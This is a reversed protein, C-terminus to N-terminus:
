ENAERRGEEALIEGALLEKAERSPEEWLGRSIAEMLRNAISVVAHPNVEHLFDRVKPDGLYAQTVREYMWDEVVNATADYGYLYDVTSALEFAGKYGHNQMASIWKPNIVRSRVVRAAEEALSRVKPSTPNSSDGFYGKADVGTISRIAALMGGHDQLYDDSDFIDHERNDQNKIAINAAGLRKVLAEQAPIGFGSSSYSYGSWALYVRALDQDDRWNGADLLPLIGSGYGGPAPGFVRAIEGSSGLNSEPFSRAVEVAAQDFLRIAGPFADRFFGSVRLTVDVRPRKLEEDPIVSFGVVKQTSPDWKPRVGMLWLAEAIDDGGTRMAATGWVVIAVSTPYSGTELLYRDCVAQGLLAGTEYSAITPLSSPDISYFNRGTPLVQVAGRSPSGSPGPEIFEGALAREIATIEDITADLRPLLEVRLAELCSRVKSNERLDRHLESDCEVEQALIYESILKSAVDAIADSQNRDQPDLHAVEAITEHLSPYSYAPIRSLAFILDVLPQGDHCRGLVHLGGRITADKIECLYGDLELLIEDFDDDEFDFSAGDLNLDKHMQVEQMLEWISARISPLKSPDLVLYRAHNDLLTELELLESYSEARTLPPIMHDIIVGHSRRKAQTGEGPDNVVFPYILPISGLTLDPFCHRSQGTAKGPLWELTGHKGLHVVANVGIIEELWRYFAVYHHTPALKPSHYIAIPNEGFGRPPQITLFINGFWIGPFFFEGDEHYWDGPPDGWSKIMTEQVSSSFSGFIGLYDKVKMRNTVAAGQKIGLAFEEYEYTDSLREMLEVGSNPIDEIHYGIEKLHNMLVIVSEPTDLGVANGLRSKKTPYASLVIAVKKKAPALNALQVYGRVLQAMRSIREPDCRYAYIAATQSLDSEIEEKYSVPVTIIRGDFEPIAVQWSADLPGLGVESELFEKNSASSIIAQFVPVGLDSTASADWSMTEEDFSGAALMTVIAAKPRFKRAFAVVDDGQAVNDIRRLSYAYIPVGHLGEKALGQCIEDIFKTNGSIAHARYFFVIVNNNDDEDPLYGGLVGVQPIALAKTYGITTMLLTDSLYYFFNAFNDPGGEILYSAASVLIPEPVNSLTALEPDFDAEGSFLCVFIGREMAGRLQEMIQDSLGRRGGLVRLAILSASAIESPTVEDIRRASIRGLEGSLEDGVLAISLIETDANSIYLIM